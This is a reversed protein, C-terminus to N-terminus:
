HVPRIILHDYCHFKVTCSSDCSMEIFIWCTNTDLWLKLM